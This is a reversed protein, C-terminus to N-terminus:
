LFITSPHITPPSISLGCRFCAATLLPVNQKYLHANTHVLMRTADPHLLILSSCIWSVIAQPSAGAWEPDSVPDTVIFFLVNISKKKKKEWTGDEWSVAPLDHRQADPAAPSSTQPEDSCNTKFIETHAVLPQTNTSKHHPLSHELLQSHHRSPLNANSFLFM